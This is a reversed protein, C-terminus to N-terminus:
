SREGRGIRYPGVRTTLAEGKWNLRVLGEALLRDVEAHVAPMAQRWDAAKQTKDKAALARAVESPCVTGDGARRALLALIMDRPYEHAVTAQQAVGASVAAESAGDFSQTQASSEM